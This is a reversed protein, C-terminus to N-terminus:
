IDLSTAGAGVGLIVCFAYLCSQLRILFRLLFFSKPWVRSFYNFYFIYRFLKRFAFFPSHHGSPNLTCSSFTLVFYFAVIQSLSLSSEM